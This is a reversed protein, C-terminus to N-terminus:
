WTMGTKVTIPDTEQTVTKHSYFNVSYHAASFL